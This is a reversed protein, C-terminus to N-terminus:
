ENHAEGGASQPSLAGHEPPCQKSFWRCTAATKELLFFFLHVSTDPAAKGKALVGGGGGGGGEWTSGGRVTQRSVERMSERRRAETPQSLASVGPGSGAAQPNLM